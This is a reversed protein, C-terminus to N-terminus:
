LAPAEPTPRPAHSAAGTLPNPAGIYQAHSPALVVLGGGALAAVALLRSASLTM